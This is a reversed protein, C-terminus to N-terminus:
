KGNFLSWIYKGIDKKYCQQILYRGGPHEVAYLTLDVVYDNFLALNRKSEHFEKITMTKLGKKKVNLLARYYKKSIIFFIVEVAIFSIFIAGMQVFYLYRVSAQFTYLGTLIVYQSYIIVLFSILSHTFKVSKVWLTAYRCFLTSSKTAVGLVFATIWLYILSTGLEKHNEGLFSSTTSYTEIDDISYVATLAILLITVAFVAHLFSRVVYFYKSYRGTIILFFSIWGWAVYALIGHKKTDSDDITIIGGTIQVSGSSLDVIMGFALDNDGRDSLTGSGWAHIMNNTGNVIKYDGDNLLRTVTYTNTSGSTSTSITYDNVTDINPYNHRNFKIDFITGAGGNAYIYFGDNRGMNSGYGFGVWGTSNATIIYEIKTSSIISAKFVVGSPLKTIISCIWAQKLIWIIVSILVIPLKKCVLFGM